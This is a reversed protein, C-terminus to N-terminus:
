ILMYFIREWAHANTGDLSCPEPPFSNEIDVYKVHNYLRECYHDNIWFMTGAAFQYRAHRYITKNIQKCVNTISDYNNNHTNYHETVIYRENSTIIPIDVNLKTYIETKFINPDLLYKLYNSRWNPDLYSTKKTHIKCINKYQLYKKNQIFKLFSYVDRGMNPVTEYKYTIKSNISNVIDIVDHLKIECCVYMHVDVPVIYNFKEIYEVIERVFEIYYIYVVIATHNNEQISKTEYISIPQGHMHIEVPNKCNSFINLFKDPTIYTVHTLKNLINKYQQKLNVHEIVYISDPLPNNKLFNYIALCLQESNAHDLHRIYHKVTM